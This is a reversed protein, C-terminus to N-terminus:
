KTKITEIEKAAKRKKYKTYSEIIFLYIIIMTASILENPDTRYLQGAFVTAEYPCCTWLISLV